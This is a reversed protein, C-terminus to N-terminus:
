WSDYDTVDKEKGCACKVLAAIGLSTPTFRYGIRGGIAGVKKGGTRSEDKLDCKHNKIFGFADKLEKGGLTFAITQNKGYEAVMDELFSLGRKTIGYKALIKNKEPM